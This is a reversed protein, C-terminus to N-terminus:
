CNGQELNKVGNDLYGQLTLDEDKSEKDGYIEFECYTILQHLKVDLSRSDICSMAIRTAEELCGFNRIDEKYQKWIIKTKKPDKYFHFLDEASLTFIPRKNEKPDLYVIRSKM